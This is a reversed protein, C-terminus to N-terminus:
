TQVPWREAKVLVEYKMISGGYKMISGRYKMISGGYNMISGRYKMISGGYNM